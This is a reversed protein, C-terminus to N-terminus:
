KKKEPPKGMITSDKSTGIASKATGDAGFSDLPVSDQATRGSHKNSESNGSNCASFTMTAIAILLLIKLRKMM